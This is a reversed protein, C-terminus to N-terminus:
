WDDRRFGLALDFHRRRCAVCGNPGTIRVSSNVWRVRLMPLRPLPWRWAFFRLAAPTNSNLRMFVELCATSALRAYSYQVHARQRIAM